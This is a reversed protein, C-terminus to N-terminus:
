SPRDAAEAFAAVYDDLTYTRPECGRAQQQGALLELILELTEFRCTLSHYHDEPVPAFNALAESLWRADEGDDGSAFHFASDVPADAPARPDGPDIAEGVIAELAMAFPSFYIPQPGLLVRLSTARAGDGLWGGGITRCVLEGFYAAAGAALLSLIPERTEERAQALYYDVYALSTVSHDLDVGLARRVQEAFVRSLDAVLRESAAQLRPLDSKSPAPAPPRM